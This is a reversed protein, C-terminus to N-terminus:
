ICDHFMYTKPVQRKVRRDDLHSRTDVTGGHSPWEVSHKVRAHIKLELFYLLITGELPM